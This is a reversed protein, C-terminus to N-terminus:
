SMSLLQKVSWISALINEADIVYLSANLEKRDSAINSSIQLVKFFLKLWYFM